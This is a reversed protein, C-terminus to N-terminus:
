DGPKLVLDVMVLQFKSRQFAQLLVLGPSKSVMHHSTRIDFVLMVGAITPKLIQQRQFEFPVSQKIPLAQFTKCSCSIFEAVMIIANLYVDIIHTHAM